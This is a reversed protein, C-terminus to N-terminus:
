TVRIILILIESITKSGISMEGKDVIIAIRIDFFNICEQKEKSEEEDM